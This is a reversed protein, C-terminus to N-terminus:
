YAGKGFLVVPLTQALIELDFLLTQHEIYYLDLLVMERFGLESRGSIQWLGSMGPKTLARQRYYGGMHDDEHMRQFDRVPLPRPGVLSMDGKLVNLLQPLEDLSYRRIFRGVRTLRPDNRMKFLAGGTENRPYLSEKKEDAETVMSRFKFFEFPAADDSLSRRQRFFVPGNSELKIAIAVLLLVPSLLLLAVAAGAVDFARKSVRKAWDIRQREPTFLSIGAIDNLGAQSFLYDAEPSIVRMTIRNQRCLDELQDFSGNLNASSFTIVSVRKQRVTKEVASREVHLMGDDGDEPPTTIISKVEYGLDPHQELRRLLRNLYPQSGIALTNWRGFGRSRLTEFYTRTASWVAVYAIPAIVFFLTLVSRTEDIRHMLFLLILLTGVSYLYGKGAKFAQRQFTTYSVTRYIGAFTFYCLFVIVLLPWLWAHSSAPPLWPPSNHAALTALIFSGSVILSDAAIALVATATRWNRRVLGDLRNM